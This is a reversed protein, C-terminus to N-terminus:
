YIFWDYSLAHKQKIAYLAENAKRLGYEAANKLWRKGIRKKKLLMYAIGLNYYLTADYHGCHLAAHAYDLFKTIQKRKLCEMGLQIYREFDQKDAMREFIKKREEALEQEKLLRQREELLKQQKLRERVEPNSAMAKMLMFMESPIPVYTNIVPMEAPQDFRNAQANVFIPLIALIALLLFCRFRM